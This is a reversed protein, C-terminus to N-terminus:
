AATGNNRGDVTLVFRVTANPTAMRYEWAHTSGNATTASAPNLFNAGAICTGAGGSPHFVMITGRAGDPPKNTAAFTIATNTSSLVVMGYQDLPLGPGATNDTIFISRLERTRLHIQSGRAAATASYSYATVTSGFINDSESVRATSGYSGFDIATVTAGTGNRFECSEIRLDAATSGAKICSYTGTTCVDNAFSCGYFDLQDGQAVAAPSYTAPILFKCDRFVGRGVTGTSDVAKKTSSPAFVCGECVIVTSTSTHFNICADMSAGDFYVDYILAKAGSFVDFIVATTTQAAAFRMNAIIQFRDTTAADSLTFIKTATANDVVITTASTGAGIFSVTGFDDISHGGLTRYTGPPFYVIGGGAAIAATYAATIAASDDAVGNGIAGYAPDRVNFVLGTLGAVAEAISIPGGDVEVQWDVAGNQAIWLDLVAQLTTPEGPGSLATQYNTGTFSESNVEVAPAADGAVFVRHSAGGSTKVVIDCLENVYVIGGGHSDLDFDAGTGIPTAGEFDLYYTARVLTDRQYIEAIGNEAGAVGAALPAVLHM